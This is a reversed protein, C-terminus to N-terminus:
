EIGQNIKKSLEVRSNDMILQNYFSTVPYKDSELQRNIKPQRIIRMKTMQKLFAKEFERDIKYKVDDFSKDDVLVQKKKNTNRLNETVDKLNEINKILSNLKNWALSQFRDELTDAVATKGLIFNKSKEVKKSNSNM